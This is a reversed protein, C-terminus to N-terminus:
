VGNSPGGFWEERKVEDKKSRASIWEFSRLQIEKFLDPIMSGNRRFRFGNSLDCSEM